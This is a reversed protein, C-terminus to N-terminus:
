KKLIEYETSGKPLQLGGGHDYGTVKELIRARNTDARQLYSELIDYNGTSESDGRVFILNTGSAIGNGVHCILCRNVVITPAIEQNFLEERTLIQKESEFYSHLSFVVPSSNALKLEVEFSSNDISIKPIKLFTGDFIAAQAVTNSTIQSFDVLTFNYGASDLSIQFVLSFTADGVIAKPVVLQDANLYPDDRSVAESDRFAVLCILIAVIRLISMSANENRVIGM